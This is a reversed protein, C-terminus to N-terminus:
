PMNKRDLITSDAYYEFTQGWPRVRVLGSFASVDTLVLTRGAGITTCTSLTLFEKAANQDGERLLQLFRDHDQQLMCAVYSSRAVYKEGVTLPRNPNQSLPSIEPTSDSTVTFAKALPGDPGDKAAKFLGLFVLLVVAGVVLKPHKIEMNMVLFEEDEDFSLDDYDKATFSM